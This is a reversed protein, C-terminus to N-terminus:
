PAPCGPTEAIMRGLKSRADPSLPAEDACLHLAGCPPAPAKPWDAIAKECERWADKRQWDDPSACSAALLVGWFVFFGGAKVPPKRLPLRSKFRYVICRLYGLSIPIKRGLLGFGKFFDYETRARHRGVNGETEHLGVSCRCLLIDPRDIARNVAGSLGTDGRDDEGTKRAGGIVAAGRQRVHADGRLSAAPEVALRQDGHRVPALRGQTGLCGRRVLFLRHDARARHFM